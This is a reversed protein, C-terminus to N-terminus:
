RIDRQECAAGYIYLGDEDPNKLRKMVRQVPLITTGNALKVSVNIEGEPDRDDIIWTGGYARRIVEGVYAGVAFIRKGLDQALLGEPVAQGDQANEDFFRDIENLSELSFDAQYGSFILAKSIWDYGKVVDESLVPKTQNNANKHKFLDFFGM